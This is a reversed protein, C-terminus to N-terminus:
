EMTLRIANAIREADPLSAYEWIPNYGIHVDERAVLQPPSLFLDWREPNSTMETIIAEGFGCTRSDEHVVVLRGTKALSREIADWDCPVLSRLDLIEIDAEAAMQEAVQEALEVCNGWTVLTVDSGERVIRAKGLPVPELRTPVEMQKRFIHKPVLILTPDDGHIATQFLASADEPTSPIAFRVGHLKAFLGDNSQSHWISGGPLYAGYPAYLVMPCKWDGNTRWRLTAVNTILQNFAPPIFDTFQVEFVPRWGYAALGVAVGVITAEALPSNIVRDPFAESCGKTFGFVGGKPDEIDQGFLIVKQNEALANRLTEGIAKVMTTRSGSEIVPPLGPAPEGYLQDTLRAPDPDPASEAERYEADVRERTEEQLQTWEAETMEGCSILEQALLTIPDREFMKDIDSQDRYVRHDDSSSHSGLRDLELWLITPGGGSRAKAIADGGKAYVEDALRGNVRVVNKENFVGLRLPNKQDTNTSIGYRNDQVLFVVPLKRELAFSVAEYFEGQRSSAEGISVLVVTDKGDLRMGWAAGVAPLCNAGVPSPMSFINLARDSFHGPMQRGASSSTAKGHFALALKYNTIGKALVMARDRYHPFLYDDPRLHAVLAALAEHGMGHIHFWGKSQRILIAERRDGERALLMTELLERKDLPKSTASRTRTTTPM